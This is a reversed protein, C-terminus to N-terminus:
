SARRTERRATARPLEILAPPLAHMSDGYYARSSAARPLDLELDEYPVFAGDTLLYPRHDAPDLAVTRVWGRTVLTELAHHRTFLARLSVPDREIVLLLRVPDHIEIMQKPLGTRLDSSAGDMVGLLGVLNHPLKTGAGYRENDVRSFYYELNIGACVPVAALLLRELLATDPDITPDYSVLLARRDLFLGRTLARRGVVTVANTAHGLEPRAESLDESRAEVHRLAESPSPNRPAWAFRRCREHASMRRARELAERLAALEGQHSPPLADTDFLEIGDTTTNHMGGVFYTDDPIHFGRAKMTERTVPDNAMAAFLRANPGGQRGGCAGCDYASRHPNNVSSAGHGLLCVIKAFRDVMGASRLTGIVREAEEARTFGIARKGTKEDDEPRHMHLHTRPAPLLRKVTAERVKALPRPFLVRLLLAFPAFLGLTPTLLAGRFLSRSSGTFLSVLKLWADSRARRVEALSRQDDDAEEYIEHAPDVVVPCLDASRRQDLARYGIAVGFFGAASWTEHEPSQEEFHRRISEERDDICFLVQFRPAEVHREERPRQVNAVIGSLVERAHHAEFATHLVRRRAGDDFADLRALMRERVSADMGALVDVSLGALTAIQFLRYAGDHAPRTSSTHLAEARRRLVAPLDALPGRFGLRRRALDRVAAVEYVLRVALFDVLKSPAAGELRDMPHHELRHFMGAWGPLALLVRSVYGEFRAQEVGLAELSALASREADRGETRDTAFRERVSRALGRAGGNGLLRLARVALYFGQERHPMPFHAVGEDLFSASLRVLEPHVLENVDAHTVELLLDRHTREVAVGEESAERVSPLPQLTHTLAFAYLLRLTTPEPERDLAALLSSATPQTDFALAFSTGTTGLAEAVAVPGLDRPKDDLMARVYARTGAIARAVAERPVDDRFRALVGGDTCGWTLGAATEQEIGHFLVLRDLTHGDIPGFDENPRSALARVVDTERLRGERLATKYEAEALYGEAGFAQRAAEVAEHFPLHEFAHLTNHHIFVGIPGQAPLLHAAHDVARRLAAVQPDAERIPHQM